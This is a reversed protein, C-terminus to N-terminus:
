PVTMYDRQEGAAREWVGGGSSEKRGERRLGRYKVTGNRMKLIKETGKMVGEM